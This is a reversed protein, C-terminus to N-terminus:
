ISCHKHVAARGEDLLPTRTCFCIHQTAGEFLWRFLRGVFPLRTLQCQINSKMNHVCSECGGGGGAGKRVGCVLAEAGAGPRLKGIKEWLAQVGQGRSDGGGRAGEWVGCVM